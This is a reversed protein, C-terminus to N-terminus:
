ANASYTTIAAIKANKGHGSFRLLHAFRSESGDSLVIRGEAAVEKGHSLLRNVHLSDAPESPLDERVEGIGTWIKNGVHEWRIDSELLGTVEDQDGSALAVLWDRILAKKPANECDPEIVIDMRM